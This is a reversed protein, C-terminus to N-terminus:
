RAVTQSQIEEDNKQRKMDRVTISSFKQVYLANKAHLQWELTINNINKIFVHKIIDTM